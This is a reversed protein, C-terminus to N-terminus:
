VSADDAGALDAPDYVYGILDAPTCDLAACLRALADTDGGAPYAVVISVPRGPPQAGSPRAGLAAAAAGGGPALTRRRIPHMSRGKVAPASGPFPGVPPAAGPALGQSLLRPGRDAVPPRAAASLFFGCASRGEREDRRDPPSGQMLKSRRVCGSM